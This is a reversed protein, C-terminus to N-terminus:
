GDVSGLTLGSVLHKSSLLFIIVVPISIMLSAASFAGWATVFQGSLRTLGLPWTAMHAKQLIIRALIFENWSSMFNLLFVVSLAPAALPIIIRYFVTMRGAGDIMAAEEIEEPITNYYGKLVWISFPVAKISYAIIIGIYTNTLGLKFIMIYTAALMSAGPLLQSCFITVLMANRGKFKWRSLAYSSLSAISVGMIATTVTIILSNWIWYFFGHDFIVRTYNSWGADEPIIKLSTSLLRDGPRLSISLVRLIPFLVWLSVIILFLYVLTYQIFSKKQGTIM